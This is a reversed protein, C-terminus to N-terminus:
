IITKGLRSYIIYFANDKKWIIPVFRYVTHYINIITIRSKRTITNSIRIPHVNKLRKTYHKQRNSPSPNTCM